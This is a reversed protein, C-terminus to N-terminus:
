RAGGPHPVHFRSMYIIFDNWKAYLNSPEVSIEDQIQSSGGSLFLNRSRSCYAQSPLTLTMQCAHCASFQFNFKFKFLIPM